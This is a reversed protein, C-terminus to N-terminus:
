RGQVLPLSSRFVQQFKGRVPAPAATHVLLVIVFEFAILLLRQNLCQLLFLAYVPFNGSLLVLLQCPELVRLLNFQLAHHIAHLALPVLDIALGGFIRSLDHGPNIGCHKPHGSLLCELGPLNPAPDLLVHSSHLLVAALNQLDNKVAIEVAVPLLAQGEGPGAIVLKESAYECPLRQLQKVQVGRHARHDVRVGSGCLVLSNIVGRSPLGDTGRLRRSRKARSTISGPHLRCRLLPPFLMLISLLPSPIKSKDRRCGPLLSSRKSM